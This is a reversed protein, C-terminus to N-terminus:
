YRARVCALRAWSRREAELYGLQVLVRLRNRRERRVDIAAGFSEISTHQALFRRLAHDDRTFGTPPAEFM